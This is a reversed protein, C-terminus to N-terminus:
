NANREASSKRLSKVYSKQNNRPAQGCYDIRAIGQGVLVEVQRLKGVIVEPKHQKDAM